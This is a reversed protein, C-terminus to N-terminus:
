KWFKLVVLTLVVAAIGGGVIRWTYDMPIALYTDIYARADGVISFENTYGQIYYYGATSLYIKYGKYTEQLIDEPPTQNLGDIFDRVAGLSTFQNPYGEVYWYGSSASTYHFYVRQLKYTTYLVDPHPLTNIFARAEEISAYQTAYGKVYYLYYIPSINWQHAWIEYGWYVEQLFDPRLFNADIWTEADVVTNFHNTYGLVFYYSVGNPTEGYWIEKAHYIEVLYSTLRTGLLITAILPM